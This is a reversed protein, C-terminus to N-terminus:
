HATEACRSYTMADGVVHVVEDVESGQSSRSVAAKMFKGVTIAACSACDVLQWSPKLVFTFYLLTLLRHAFGGFLLTFCLVAFLQGSQHGLYGSTEGM